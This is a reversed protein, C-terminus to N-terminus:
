QRFHLFYEKNGDAGCLPSLCENTVKYGLTTAFSKVQEVARQRLSESVVVGTKSLAKKGVEFQPKVLTVVHKNNDQLQWLIPLVQTLSIFSVDAVILDPSKGLKGFVIDSTLNKINIGELSDVRPDNQLTVDLQSHGVDVGLCRAAGAQLLCDTFGGTSMGVDLCYFNSVDINFQSLAGALKEGARSVYRPTHLLSITDNQSVLLSSKTAVVGNVNVLGRSILDQAQTRSRTLKEEVLFVDLRKHTPNSM